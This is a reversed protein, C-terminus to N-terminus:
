AAIVIPSPTTTPPSEAHTTASAVSTTASANRGRRARIWSRTSRRYRRARYSPTRRTRAKSSSTRSPTRAGSSIPTTEGVGQLIRERLEEEPHGSVPAYASVVPSRSSSSGCSSRVRRSIWRSSVGVATNSWSGVSSSRRVEDVADEGSGREISIARSADLDAGARPPGPRARACRRLPSRPVCAGRARGGRRAWCRRTESPTCTLRSWSLRGRSAFIREGASSWTTESTPAAM